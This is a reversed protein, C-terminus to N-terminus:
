YNYSSCLDIMNVHVITDIYFLMLIIIQKIFRTSVKTKDMATTDASIKPLVIADTLAVMTAPEAVDVFVFVGM